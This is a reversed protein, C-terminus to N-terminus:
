CRFLLYSWWSLILIISFIELLSSFIYFSWKSYDLLLCIISFYLVSVQVLLTWRLHIFKFPLWGALKAQRHGYESLSYVFHASFKTIEIKTVNLTSKQWLEHEKFWSALVAKIKTWNFHNTGKLYNAIGKSPSPKMPYLAEWMINKRGKGRFHGPTRSTNNLSLAISFVHARWSHEWRKGAGLRRLPWMVQLYHYGQEIHTHLYPDQSPLRWKVQM